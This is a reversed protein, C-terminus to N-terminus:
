FQFHTLMDYLLVTLALRSLDVDVCKSVVEMTLMSVNHYPEGCAVASERMWVCLYAWWRQHFICAFHMNVLVFDRLVCASAELFQPCLM